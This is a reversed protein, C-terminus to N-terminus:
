GWGADCVPSLAPIIGVATAARTAKAAREVEREWDGDVGVMGVVGGGVSEEGGRRGLGDVGGLAPSRLGTARDGGGEGERAGAGEVVVVGGAEGVDGTGGGGGGRRLESLLALIGSANGGRGCAAIAAQYHEPLLLSCAVGSVGGVNGGADGADGGAAAAAALKVDTLLRLALQWEGSSACARLAALYDRAEPVVGNGGIDNGGGGDEDEVTGEGATERPSSM